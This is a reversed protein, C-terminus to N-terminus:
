RGFIIKLIIIVVSLTVLGTVFGLMDVGLIEFNLLGKFAQVPADLVASILSFFSYDRADNVGDSFGADYGDSKGESYGADHGKGYGYDYSNAVGDDYGIFYGDDYGAVHGDDYGEFYGKKRAIDIASTLATSKGSLTVNSFFLGSKLTADFPLGISTYTGDGNDRCFGFSIYNFEVSCNIILEGNAFNFNSCPIYYEVGYNDANDSSLGYTSATIYMCAGDDFAFNYPGLYDWSLRFDSLAACTTGLDLECILFSDPSKEVSNRYYFYGSYSVDDITANLEKSALPNGMAANSSPVSTSDLDVHAIDTYELSDLVSDYQSKLKDYEQQLNNYDDQLKYLDSELHVIDGGDFGLCALSCLGICETFSRSLTEDAGVTPKGYVYCQNSYGFAFTNCYTRCIYPDNGLDYAYIQYRSYSTQVDDAFMRLYLELSSNRSYTVVLDAVRVDDTVRYFTYLSYNTLSSGNYIDCYDLIWTELDSIQFVLFPDTKGAELYDMALAAFNDGDDVYEVSASAVDSTSFVPSLVAMFLASVFVLLALSAGGIRLIREKTLQKKTKCPM